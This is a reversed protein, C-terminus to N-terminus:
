RSQKRRNLCYDIDAVSQPLYEGLWKDRVKIGKENRIFANVTSRWTSDGKPLIFGYFDCTLPKEPILQYSESALNQRAIEGSLLVGDSIFTDLNGNVLSKVGQSRGKAGEFYVVEALPYTKQVFQETTSQKLVGTTIGELGNDFDIQAVTDNPVLFRTGSIFFPDSFTVKNQDTRITNPGCELHVANQEVLEFRNELTSSLKIIEIESDIDLKKALYTALSDALDDCYGTWVNQQNDIYGFPAADSRMAIKLTKTNRIEALIKSKKKPFVALLAEPIPPTPPTKGYAQELQEPTLSKVLYFPLEQNSIVQAYASSLYAQYESSEPKDSSGIDRLYVEFFALSMAKLYIRALDPRVGQLIDPLSSVGDENSTSNHSGGVMVGLYKNPTTLWLFPHAQEEIFPAVIDESGGLIMTPISIQRMNELGLISSTVPNVAIAAKIRPDKLNYQGPPLSSARCQLLISANLTPKNEQCIQKTRDRNMPAGALALATYGGFSHGLVGVQEWNILGPFESNNQIENLLYTIDLPRSFFEVPSVDIRLEGRLFADKFESNSGIHEPVVIIYGHSALHQALYDFHSRSSTFGHSFILLPAPETLGEPLYIDADLSYDTAFGLQTQRIQNIAFTMTKQVVSYSGPERIDSMQEFDAIQQSNVERSGQEAIANITTENYSLFNGLEKILTFILQTNLQIDQTPFHRMFNIFTLGEADAAALILASRIAYIGNRKPHTYIVEGLQRLFNEGMPMNTVRSVTTPSVDFREQLAERFRSLTKDDLRKAYFEFEPTIKGEEAFVALSDVSLNFQGVVPFSFTIREAGLSAKPKLEMFATGLSALLATLIIKLLKKSITTQIM